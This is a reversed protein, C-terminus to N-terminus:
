DGGGRVCVCVVRVEMMLTSWNAAVREPGSHKRYVDMCTNAMRQAPPLPPARLSILANCMRLTPFPPVRRGDAGRGGGWFFLLLLHGFLRLPLRRGGSVQARPLDALLPLVQQELDEFTERVNVVSVNSQARLPAPPPPPPLPRRVHAVQLFVCVCVSERERARACVRLGGGERVEFMPPYILFSDARPKVLVCGSMIIEFDKHSWEGWGWPSLM